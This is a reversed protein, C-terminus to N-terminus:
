DRSEAMRVNQNRARIRWWLPIACARQCQEGCTAEWVEAPQLPEYPHQMPFSEIRASCQIYLNIYMICMPVRIMTLNTLLNANTTDLADNDMNSRLFMEPFMLSM